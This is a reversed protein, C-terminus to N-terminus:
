VFTYFMICQRGKHQLKLSTTPKRESMTVSSGALNTECCIGVRHGEENDSTALARCEGKHGCDDNNKCNIVIGFPSKLVKLSAPCPQPRCTPQPPCHKISQCRVPTLM